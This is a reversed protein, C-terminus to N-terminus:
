WCHTLCQLLQITVNQWKAPVGEERAYLLRVPYTRPFICWLIYLLLRADAIVHHRLCCTGGLQSEGPGAGHKTPMSPEGRRMCAM